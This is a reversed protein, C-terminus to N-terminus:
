NSSLYESNYDGLKAWSEMMSAFTEGIAFYSKFESEWEGLVYGKFRQRNDSQLLGISRNSLNIKKNM